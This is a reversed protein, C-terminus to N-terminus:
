DKILAGGTRLVALAVARGCAGSAPCTRRFFLASSGQPAETTKMEDSDSAKKKKKPAIRDKDKIRPDNLNIMKKMKGFQKSRKDRPM